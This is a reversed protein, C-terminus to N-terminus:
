ALDTKSPEPPSTIMAIGIEATVPIARVPAQIAHWGDKSHRMEITKDEATLTYEGEPLPNSIWEISYQCDKFLSTGPLGIRLASVKCNATLGKGRLFGSMRISERTFTMSGSGEPSHVSGIVM